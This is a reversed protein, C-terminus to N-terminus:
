NVLANPVEQVPTGIQRALEVAAIICYPVPFGFAKLEKAYQALVNFQKGTLHRKRHSPVLLVTLMERGM